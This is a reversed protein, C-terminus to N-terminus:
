DLKRMHPFLITDRISTVNLFLMAMRDIGIGLGGTPPLGYELADLFDSDMEMAEDDGSARAKVQEEFRERQDIPDNLESFGNSMEMGCIFLEYRETIDPNNPYSKSLPSVAKPYDIIFTPEILTHEVKEEFIMVMVEWKSPKIKSTDIAVDVSRAKEIAEDDTKIANFDFGTKEKVVDIMAIKKFPPKMNLINDKYKTEYNGNLKFCVGSFIDEILKMIDHFNSYAMYAEMMTFEPNHKTSVGENRFNRNMEFVKDFGGVILRKLYLEPAIRLYLDMDLANHHTIFPKAKAGGLITHMMPTEVELFGYETMINRIASIMKSRKIFTDKVEDNMILDVYRKRYRLETDTLGHFKEPLPNISKTLLTLSSVLISVEGTKTKFLTGKAGVIDGTDILKKFVNNYFDEGVTEMQIYLQIKGKTDKITLFSSKGMIRFLMIRGAVTVETKNKELEEFNNKVTQSCYTVEYKNPYPNIGSERLLKVKDKRGHKEISENQVLNSM